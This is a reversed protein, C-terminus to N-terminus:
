KLVDKCQGTVQDQHAKLCKMKRKDDKCFKELDEKCNALLADRKAKMAVKKEKCSPSLEAEHEKLCKAVGGHGKVVNPCFKLIDEKCPHGGALASYVFMLSLFKLM